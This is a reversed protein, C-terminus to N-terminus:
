DSPIRKCPLPARAALAKRPPRFGHRNRDVPALADRRELEFM